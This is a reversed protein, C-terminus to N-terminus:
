PAPDGSLGDLYSRCTEFRCDALEDLLRALRRLHGRVRGNQRLRRAVPVGEVM